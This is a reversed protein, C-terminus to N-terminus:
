SFVPGAEHATKLPVPPLRIQKGIVILASNARHSAASNLTGIPQCARVRCATADHAKAVLQVVTHRLERKWHFTAQQCLCKDPLAVQSSNVGRSPYTPDPNLEPPRGSLVSGRHQSANTPMKRARYSVRFTHRAMSESADVRVNVLRKENSYAQKGNGALKQSRHM